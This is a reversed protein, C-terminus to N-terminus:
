LCDLKAVSPFFLRFMWWLTREVAMTGYDTWNVYFDGIDLLM